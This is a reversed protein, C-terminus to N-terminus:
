YITLTVSHPCLLDGKQSILIGVFVLYLRHFDTWFFFHRMVQSVRMLPFSWVSFFFEWFESLVTVKM